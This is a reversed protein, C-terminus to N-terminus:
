YLSQICLLYKELLIDAERCYCIMKLSFYVSRNIHSIDNDYIIGYMVINKSLM